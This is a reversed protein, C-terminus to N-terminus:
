RKQLEQTLAETARQKLTAGAGGYGINVQDDWVEIVVYGLEVPDPEYCGKAESFKFSLSPYPLRHMPVSPDKLAALAPAFVEDHVNKVSAGYSVSEPFPYLNPDMIQITVSGKRKQGQVEGLLPEPGSPAHEKPNCYPLHEPSYGMISAPLDHEGSTPAVRATGGDAVGDPTQTTVLGEAIQLLEVESVTGELEIRTGEDIWTLKLAQDSRQLRAPQGVVSRPEGAPLAEGQRDAREFLQVYRGDSAEYVLVIYPESGRGQEIAAQAAPGASQPRVEKEIVSVGTRGTRPDPGPNYRQATLKFGEPLYDPQKVNFPPAPRFTSIGESGTAIGGGLLQRIEGVAQAAAARFGPSIVLLAIAVLVAAGVGVVVPRLIRRWSRWTSPRNSPQALSRIQDAAPQPIAQIRHQLTASPTQRLSLLQRVLETDAAEFEALIESETQFQVTRKENGNM